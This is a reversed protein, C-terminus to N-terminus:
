KENLPGDFIPGGTGLSTKTTGVVYTDVVFPLEFDSAFDIM